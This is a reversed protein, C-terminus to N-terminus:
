LLAKAILKRLNDKNDSKKKEPTRKVSRTLSRKFPVIRQLKEDLRYYFHGPVRRKILHGNRDLGVIVYFGISPQYMFRRLTKNFFPTTEPIKRSRGAYNLYRNINTNSNSNNGSSTRKSNRIKQLNLALKVGEILSKNNPKNPKKNTKKNESNSNPM